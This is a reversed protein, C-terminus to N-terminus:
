LNCQVFCRNQGRQYIEDLVCDEHFIEKSM